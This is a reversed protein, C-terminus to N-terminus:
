NVTDSAMKNGDGLVLSHAVRVLSNLGCPGMGESFSFKPSHREVCFLHMFLNEKAKEETQHIM